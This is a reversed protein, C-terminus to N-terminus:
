NEPQFVVSRCYVFFVRSQRSAYLSGDESVSFLSVPNPFESSDEFVQYWGSMREIMDRTGTFHDINAICTINQMYLYKELGQDHLIRQYEYNNVLGDLNVIRHKCYYGVYGADWSGIVTGDDLTNLFDVGNREPRQSDPIVFSYGQLRDNAYVINFVVLGALLIWTIGQRLLRIRIRSLLLVFSIMVGFIVPFWYYTYVDLLSEYMFSYYFLLFVTYCCCVAMLERNSTVETRIFWVAAWIVGGVVALAAPLPLRGGLTAFNVFNNVGHQFFGIDGNELLQRLLESGAASKIYGSVPFIGGFYLKNVIVYLILYIMVPLGTRLADRFRGSLTFILCVGFVLALSDLRAMCTAILSISLPWTSYLGRLSRAFLLLSIGYCLILLGTEMGSLAGKSWFWFNLLWFAAAAVSLLIKKTNEILIRYLVFGSAAFLLTQLMTVAQAALARSRTMLFVPVLMAQWLPHFGNTRNIGDFTIGNGCSINRAIELYYYGDDVLQVGFTNILLFVSIAVIIALYVVVKGGESRRSRQEARIEISM